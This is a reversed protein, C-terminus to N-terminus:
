AKSRLSVSVGVNAGTFIEPTPADANYNWSLSGSVYVHIDESDTPERTMNIFAYAADQVAQRDAAHVPQGNVVNALEAELKSGAEDKTSAKISFSYSM